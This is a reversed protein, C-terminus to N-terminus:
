LGVDDPWRAGRRRPRVTRAPTVARSRSSIPVEGPSAEDLRDALGLPTVHQSWRVVGRPSCTRWQQGGHVPTGRWGQIPDVFGAGARADPRHPGDLRGRRAAGGDLSSGAENEVILAWAWARHRWSWHGHPSDDSMGFAKSSSFM